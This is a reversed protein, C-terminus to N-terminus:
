NHRNHSTDVGENVESDCRGFSRCRLVSSGQLFTDRARRGLNVHVIDLVPNAIKPLVLLRIWEFPRIGDILTVKSGPKMGDKLIGTDLSVLKKPQMNFQM